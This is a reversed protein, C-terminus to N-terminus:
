NAKRSPRAALRWSASALEPNGALLREGLPELLALMADPDATATLTNALQFFEDASQRDINGLKLGVEANSLEFGGPVSVRGVSYLASVDLRDGSDNAVITSDMGVDEVAFSGAAGQLPDSVAVRALAVRTDGTPMSEPSARRMDSHFTLAELIASAFPSQLSLSALEGTTASDSGGFVGAFTIGSSTVSVDPLAIDIPPVEGEYRLGSGFGSRGRFDFIYPMGFFQDALTALDSGPEVYAHVSATGIGFGDDFLLPGHKIDVIVPLTFGGFMMMVMPDPQGGQVASLYDPSIGIELRAKTDFWGRDIDAIRTELVGAGTMREVRRHMANENIMGIAMPTALLVLVIIGVVILPGRKLM